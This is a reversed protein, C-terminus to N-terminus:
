EPYAILIIGPGGWGSLPMQNPGGTAGGGGSGSGIKANADRRQTPTVGPGPWVHNAIGAGCWSNGMPAGGAGNSTPSYPGGYPAGSGGGAVWWM